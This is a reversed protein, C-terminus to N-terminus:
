YRNIFLGKLVEIFSVVKSVEKLFELV